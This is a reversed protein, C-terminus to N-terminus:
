FINNWNSSVFHHFGKHNRFTFGKCVKGNKPKIQVQQGRISNLYDSSSFVDDNFRQSIIDAGSLSLFPTDRDIGNPLKDWTKYNIGPKLSWQVPQKVLATGDKYITLSASQSQAFILNYVLIFFYFKKM